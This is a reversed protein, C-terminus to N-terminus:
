FGGLPKGLLTAGYDRALNRAAAGALEDPKVVNRLAAREGVSFIVYGSVDIFAVAVIMPWWTYGLWLVATLGAANLLRVCESITMLRKRNVRDLYVGAPLTFF